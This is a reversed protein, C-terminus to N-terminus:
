TLASGAGRRRLRKALAQAQVRLEPIAISEWLEGIRMAGLVYLDPSPRGDQGIVAGSDDTAMGIGHPGPSLYGRRRLAAVLGSRMRGIHTEVGTANIVCHVTLRRPQAAHRPLFDVSSAAADGSISLLRGAHVDLQGSQGLAELQSAVQPAIRHRHIDWFRVAHRLFRRQEGEAMSRWLAQGHDRLRDMTWQWPQGSRLRQAADRRLARMRQRVTLSMLHDVGGDQTGRVAHPLPMLGHRSLVTIRGRHRNQALSVAADVMSLGSGIIAVDADASIRRIAPFDWAELIVPEGIIRDAPLPMGRPDNGIALVVQRARLAGGSKLQLLQDSGRVVDVVEDRLRHLSAFRPLAELTARLYRGYELRPAFTGALKAVTQDPSKGHLYRVFHDPADDFASMREATVNLLHEPLQTSYAAGRALDDGREIIAIRLPSDPDSLLHIAVLVGAAGGGIIAVDFLNSSTDTCNM